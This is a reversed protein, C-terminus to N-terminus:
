AIGALEHKQDRGMLAALADGPAQGEFLIAYVQQTIPMEVYHRLALDRTSRTTKVGEAVMKMSDLIEQLSEGKGLRLGVTRNRSLDGTCTLVLDGMGALGSFTLPNAGLKIGLRTIEALGRTIIGARTNHGLGLGDSVGCAIAIVNKLAGGMEVGVVDESTYTRFYPSSFTEQAYRAAEENSSAITVATPLRRGVERAFSPGSLFCVKDRNAEPLAEGLVESMTQLTENEIGKSASVIVTRPALHPAAQGMVTRTVHSPSVSLVLDRDSVAEALDTTAHLNENLEIGELYTRNERGEEVQKAVEEEYAWMLVPHGNDALLNALATGWSGAGVVGIRRETSM